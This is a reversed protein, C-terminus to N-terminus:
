PCRAPRRGRPPPPRSHRRGRTACRRCVRPRARGAPPSPRSSRRRGSGTTAARSGAGRRRGRDPWDPTRAGAGISRALSHTSRPLPRHMVVGWCPHGATVDNRGTGWPLPCCAMRESWGPWRPAGHGYGDFGSVRAVGARRDARPDVFESGALVRGASGEGSGRAPGHVAAGPPAGAGGEVDEDDTREGVAAGRHEVGMVQVTPGLAHREVRRGPTREGGGGADDLLGPREHAEIARAAADVGDAAHLVRKRRGVPDRGREDDDVGVFSRGDADAAGQGLPGHVVGM